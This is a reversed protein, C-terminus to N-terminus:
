SKEKIPKNAVVRSRMNHKDPTAPAVCHENFFSEKNQPITKLALTPEMLNIYNIDGGTGVDVLSAARVCNVTVVLPDATHKEQLLQFLLAAKGGSGIAVTEDLGHEKIAMKEKPDFSVVYVKSTVVILLTLQTFLVTNSALRFIAEAEALDKGANILNVAREGQAANGAHGVALITEGKFQQGVIVSLKTTDDRARNHPQKCEVCVFGSPYPAISSRRDAALFGKNYIITTM